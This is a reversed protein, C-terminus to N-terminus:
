QKKPRKGDDKAAAAGPRLTLYIATGDKVSELLAEMEPTKRFTNLSQYGYDIKEALEKVSLGQSGALGLATIIRAKLDGRDMRSKRAKPIAGAAAVSQAVVPKPQGIDLIRHYTAIQRQIEVLRSQTRIEEAKLNKLGDEDEILKLMERLEAAKRARLETFTGETAM